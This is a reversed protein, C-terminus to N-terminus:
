TVWRTGGGDIALIRIGRGKVPFAYGVMALAQRAQDITAQDQSKNMTKLLIPIVNEQIM